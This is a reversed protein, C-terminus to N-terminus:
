IKEHLQDQKEQTPEPAPPNLRKDIIQALAEDDRLTEDVGFVQKLIDLGDIACVEGSSAYELVVGSTQPIHPFQRYLEDPTLVAGGLITVNSTKDWLKFQNM